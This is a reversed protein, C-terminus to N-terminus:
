TRTEAEKRQPRPWPVPLGPAFVGRVLALGTAEITGGPRLARHRYLGAMLSPLRLSAAIETESLTIEAATLNEALREPKATKPLAIVNTQSLLWAM